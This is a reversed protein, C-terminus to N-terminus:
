SNNTFTGTAMKKPVTSQIIRYAILNLYCIPQHLCIDLNTELKKVQTRIDNVGMIPLKVRLFLFEFM